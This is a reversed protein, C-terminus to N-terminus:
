YIGNRVFAVSIAISSLMIMCAFVVSYWPMRQRFARLASMINVVTLGIFVWTGIRIIMSPDPIGFFLAYDYALTVWVLQWLLYSVLVLGSVIVGTQIIRQQRVSSTDTSQGRLLRWFARAIRVFFALM